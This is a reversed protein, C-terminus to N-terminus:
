EAGLMKSIRKVYDKSLECDKLGNEASDVGLLYCISKLNDNPEPYPSGGLIQNLRKLYEKMLDCDKLGNEATNVGLLYCIMRLNELQISSPSGGLIRVIPSFDPYCCSDDLFILMDTATVDYTYYGHYPYLANKPYPTYSHVIGWGFDKLGFYGNKLNVDHSANYVLTNNLYGDVMYDCLSKFFDFFSSSTFISHFSTYGEYSSYVSYDCNFAVYSGISSLALTAPFFRPHSAEQNVWSEFTFGLVFGRHECLFYGKSAISSLSFDDPLYVRTRSSLSYFAVNGDDSFVFFKM